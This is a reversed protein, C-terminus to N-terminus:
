NLLGISCLEKLLNPILVLVAIALRLEPYYEWEMIRSDAYWTFSGVFGLVLSWIETYKLFKFCSLIVSTSLFVGGLVLSFGILYGILSLKSQKDWVEKSSGIAPLDQPDVTDREKLKSLEEGLEEETGKRRKKLYYDYGASVVMILSGVLVLYTGNM